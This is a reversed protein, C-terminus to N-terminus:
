LYRQVTGALDKGLVGYYLGYFLLLIVCDMRIRFINIDIILFIIKSFIITYWTTPLAGSILNVGMFTAM